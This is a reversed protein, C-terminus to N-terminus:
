PTDETEQAVRGPPLADDIDRLVPHDVGTEWLAAGARRLLGRLREVKAEAKEWRGIQALGDLTLDKIRDMRDRAMQALPYDHPLSVIDAAALIARVEDREATLAEIRDALRGYLAGDTHDSVRAARAMTILEADTM